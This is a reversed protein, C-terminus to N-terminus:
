SGTVGSTGLKLGANRDTMECLELTEFIRELIQDSVRVGIIGPFM